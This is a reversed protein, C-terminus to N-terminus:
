WGQITNHIDRLNRDITDLQSNLMMFDAQDQRAQKQQEALADQQQALAAAASKAQSIRTLESEYNSAMEMNGIEFAKAKNYTAATEQADLDRKGARIEGIFERYSKMIKSYNPDLSRPQPLKKVWVVKVLTATIFKAVPAASSARPVTAQDGEVAQQRANGLAINEALQKRYQAAGDATLGYKARHEDNLKEIPIKSTGSEHIIRLGDPEVSRITVATYGNLEPIVQGDLKVPPQPEQILYRKAELPKLGLKKAAKRTLILPKDASDFLPDEEAELAKAMEAVKQALPTAANGVDPFESIAQQQSRAYDEHFRKEEESRQGVCIGTLTLAVIWTVAQTKMSTTLNTKSM